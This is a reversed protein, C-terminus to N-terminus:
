ESSVNSIGRGSDNTRDNAHLGAGGEELNNVRSTNRDVNNGLRATAQRLGEEEAEDRTSYAPTSFSQEVAQEEVGCSVTGQVMWKGQAVSRFALQVHCGAVMMDKIDSQTDPIGSTTEMTM